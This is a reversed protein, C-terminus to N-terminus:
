TIGQDIYLEQGFVYFFPVLLHLMCVTDELVSTRKKEEELLVSLKLKERKENELENLKENLEKQKKDLQESKEELKRSLEELEKQKEEDTTQKAKALLESSNDLLIKRLQLPKIICFRIVM